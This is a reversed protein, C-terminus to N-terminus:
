GTCRSTAPSSPGRAEVKGARFDDTSRVDLIETVTGAQIERFLETSTITDAM